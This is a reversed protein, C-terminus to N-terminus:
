TTAVRQSLVPHPVVTYLHGATSALWVWGSIVALWLLGVGLPSLALIAGGLFGVLIVTGCAVGLRSRPKEDRDRSWRAYVFSAGALASFGVAGFVMHLVGSTSFSGGVSGAPYGKVPGPPFTASLVMCMGYTGTLVAMALGRGNRITRLIGYAAALVMIASLTLNARQIWGHDDLMLLSLGHETFDFDPRTLALSVGVVIYFPGAVVGWGLLSRTVAAETDFGRRTAKSVPATTM